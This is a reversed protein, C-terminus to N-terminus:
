TSLVDFGLVSIGFRDETSFEGPEAKNRIKLCHMGQELEPSTFKADFDVKIPRSFDVTHIYQDDIWVDALGMWPASAGLWRIQM